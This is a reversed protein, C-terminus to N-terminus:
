FNILNEVIEEVEKLTDKQYIELTNIEDTLNSRLMEIIFFDKVKLRPDYFCFHLKELKENVIFYQLGQYRYEEPIEGTLYAEIHRASSLCKVEVAEIEGIVGDPSLAINENNDSVWLVLSCDVKKDTMKEFREIAEEELRHGRDMPNEGDAPLGIREAILEYFGIKKGTGRKVIIDKLRSGTIKGLRAALWEAENDFHQIKM